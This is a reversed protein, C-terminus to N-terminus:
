ILGKESVYTEFTQFAEQLWGVTQELQECVQKDRYHKELTLAISEMQRAGITASSGKITHIQRLTTKSDNTQRSSLFEDLREKVDTVYVSLLERILEDEGGTLESLPTLDLVPQTTYM